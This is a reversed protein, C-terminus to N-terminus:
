GCPAVLAWIDANCWINFGCFHRGSYRCQKFRYWGEETRQLVRCVLCNISDVVSHSTGGLAVLVLSWGRSAELQCVYVVPTTRGRVLTWWRTHPGELLQEFWLGGAPHKSTPLIGITPSQSSRSIKIQPPTDPSRDLDVSSFLPIPGAHYFDM